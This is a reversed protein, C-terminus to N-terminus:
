DMKSNQEEINTIIRVGVSIKSITIERDIQGRKKKTGILNVSIVVGSRTHHRTSGNTIIVIRSVKILEIPM